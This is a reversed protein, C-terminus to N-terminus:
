QHCELTLYIINAQSETQLEAFDVGLRDCLRRVIAYLQDTHALMMQPLLQQMLAHGLMSQTQQNHARAQQLLANLTQMLAPDSRSLTAPIISQSQCIAIFTEVIKLRVENHADDQPQSVELQSV